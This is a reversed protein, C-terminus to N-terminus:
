DPVEFGLEKLSIVTTVVGGNKWSYSYWPYEEQVNRDPKARM